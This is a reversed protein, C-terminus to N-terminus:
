ENIIIKTKSFSNTKVNLFLKNNNFMSMDIKGIFSNKGVLNQTWLINGLEDVLSLVPNEEGPITIEYQIFSAGPNPYVKFNIIEIEKGTVYELPHECLYTEYGTLKINKFFGDYNITVDVEENDSKAWPNHAAILIKNDKVIGRWIAQKNRNYEHASITEIIEYDGEFFHKFKSLRYLGKMFYQYGEFNIDPDTPDDWLWIGKVGSFFPFIAMAESMWNKINQGVFQPTYSYKNWLFLIQEKDTRSRNAEVQFLLYSLYEGAFIHPYDYYFYASPAIIDSQNSFSGGLSNKSFDFNLFNLLETDNQWEEWSPGQINTFTNFIPPDGYSTFKNANVNNRFFKLSNAYINQIEEQYKKIFKQDSLQRIEDPVFSYQRLNLISDASKHYNEIDLCFIDFDLSGGNQEKVWELRESWYSYYVEMDNGFPSKHTEWPQGADAVNYFIYVKETPKLSKLDNINSIHTFGRNLLANPDYIAPLGGYVITFPLSFEPFQYWDVGNNLAKFEFDLGSECNQAKLSFSSLITLLFLLFIRNKILKASM